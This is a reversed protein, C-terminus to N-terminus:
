GSMDANEVGISDDRELDRHGPALRISSEVPHAIADLRETALQGDLVRRVTTRANM